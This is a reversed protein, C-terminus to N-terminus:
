GLTTVTTTSCALPRLLRRGRLSWRRASGQLARARRRGRAAALGNVALGNAALGNAAVGSVALGSAALGSVALGSAVPGSVAPGSAAPGSAAAGDADDSEGRTTAEKEARVARVVPAGAERPTM